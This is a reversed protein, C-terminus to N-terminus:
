WYYVCTMIDSNHMRTLTTRDSCNFELKGKNCCHFGRSISSFYSTRLNQTRLCDDISQHHQSHTVRSCWESFLMPLFHNQWIKFTGTTWVFKIKRSALYLLKQFNQFMNSFFFYIAPELAFVGRRHKHQHSPLETQKIHSLDSYWVQIKIHEWKFLNELPLALGSVGEQPM